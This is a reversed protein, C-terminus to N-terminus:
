MSNELTPGILWIRVCSPQISAGISKKLMRKVTRVLMRGGAGAGCVTVTHLGAKLNRMTDTPENPRFKVVPAAAGDLFGTAGQPANEFGIYVWGDRPNFFHVTGDALPMSVLESVFNNLRRAWIDKPRASATIRYSDSAVLRGTAREVIRVSLRHSGEAVGGFEAAARCRADLPSVVPKGDDVAAILDYESAPRELVGPYYFSVKAASSDVRSLKPDIPVIRARFPKAAPTRVAAKRAADSEALLYPSALEACGEVPGKAMYLGFNYPGNPMIKGSWELKRWQGDTDDPLHIDVSERWGANFFVVRADCGGVNRTRVWCGLRHPEGAALVIGGQYLGVGEGSLPLRLVNAGDPGAGRVLELRAGTRWNLVGGLGDDRFSPNQLLNGDTGHVFGGALVAWSLCCVIARWLVSIQHM